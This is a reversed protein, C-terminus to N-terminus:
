SFWEPTGPVWAAVLQGVLLIRLLNASSEYGPGFVHIVDPARWFMLILAPATLLGIMLGAQKTVRRLSLFDHAATARAMQPGVVSHIASHVISVTISIRIAVSYGAAEQAPALFGLATAGLWQMVTPALTVTVLPLSALFIERRGEFARPRLFRGGFRRSFEWRWAAIALIMSLWASACVFGAVIAANPQLGSGTAAVGAIVLVPVLVNQFFLALNPRFAGKLMEALLTLGSFAPLAIASYVLAWVADDGYSARAILPLLALFAACLAGSVLSVLSLRALIANAFGHADAGEIRTAIERLGSLDCGVRGVASAIMLISYAFFFIGAQYAGLQRAIIVSMALQLGAGSLRVFGAGFLKTSM